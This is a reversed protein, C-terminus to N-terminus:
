LKFVTRVNQVTASLSFVSWVYLLAHLVSLHTQSCMYRKCWNYVANTQRSFKIPQCAAAAAQRWDSVRRLAIKSDPLLQPYDFKSAWYHVSNPVNYHVANAYSLILIINIFDNVIYIFHVTYYLNHYRIPPM